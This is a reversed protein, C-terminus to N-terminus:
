TLLVMSIAQDEVQRGAEARDFARFAIAHGLGEDFGDLAVVDPDAQDWIGSGGESEDIVPHLVIVGLMGM